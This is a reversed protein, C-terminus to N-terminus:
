DFLDLLPRGMSVPKTFGDAGLRTDAPIDLAHFLTAGFDEPRVPNDRVYGATKDSSGYVAGGRIGAGALLASYCAPWHDRGLNAIKPSRGFEGVLVVLTSELLGRDELDTLLASVAEDVRPLAWALGYSGTGFISGIYPAAGPGHM